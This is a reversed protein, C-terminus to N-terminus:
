NVHLEENIRNILDGIHQINIQITEMMRPSDIPKLHSLSLQAAVSSMKTDVFTQKFLLNEYECQNIKERLRLCEEEYADKLSEIQTVLNRAESKWYGIISLLRAESM